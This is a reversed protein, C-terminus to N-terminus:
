KIVGIRQRRTNTIVGGREIYGIIRRQTDRIQLRRGHGPNYVDGVRQRKENTIFIREGSKCQAGYCKASVPVPPMCFTVIGLVFIWLSLLLFWDLKTM